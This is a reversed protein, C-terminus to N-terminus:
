SCLKELGEPSCRNLLDALKGMGPIHLTPPALEGLPYLVFNRVAIGEHPVRLREDDFQQNGYLLIDLDLPRAAWRQGDRRRGHAQEIAQLKDLLAHPALATELKAVANIYDPQLSTGTEAQEPLVLPVSRYLSSVALSGTQPLLALEDIAQMVQAHPDDLNAGLGVYVEIM